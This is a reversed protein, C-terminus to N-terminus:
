SDAQRKFFTSCPSAPCIEQPSIIMTYKTNTKPIKYKNKTNSPVYIQTLLYNQGEDFNRRKKVQTESRTKGITNTNSEVLRYTHRRESPLGLDLERSGSVDRINIAESIDM